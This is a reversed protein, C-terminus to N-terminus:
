PYKVTRKAETRCNECRYIADALGDTFLIPKKRKFVMPERCDPCRPVM